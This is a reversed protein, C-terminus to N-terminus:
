VAEQGGTGPGQLKAIADTVVGFAESRPDIVDFHNANLLEVFMVQEGRKKKAEAYTRAIEIPVVDDKTGHIIAQQARITLEMPSAERYHDPVQEPTGGLYDVVADNSLHLEWVRRLDLAGALSVCGRISSERAALCLALQGGASHGVVIAPEAAIGLERAQQVLYRYATRIDEFTRPWGGGPSGVRRYELNAVNWGHGALASCLHSAHALDYKARWFGGHINLVLPSSHHKGAYLDLFQDPEPGYRVRRDAPIPPLILIDDPM